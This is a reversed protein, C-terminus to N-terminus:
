AHHRHGRTLGSRQGGLYGGGHLADGLLLYFFRDVGSVAFVSQSIEGAQQHALAIDTVVVMRHKGTSRRASAVACAARHIGIANQQGVVQAITRGVGGAPAHDRGFFDLTDIHHVARKRRGVGTVRHAGDNIVDGTHRLSEFRIHLQTAGDLVEIDVLGVTVKGAPLAASRHTPATAIPRPPQVAAMHVALPLRHHKCPFGSCARASGSIHCAAHHDRAGFVLSTTHQAGAGLVVRHLVVALQFQGIVQGWGHTGAVGQPYPLVIRSAAGVGVEAGAGTRRKVVGGFDLHIATVVAHCAGLKQARLVVPFVQHMAQGQFGM